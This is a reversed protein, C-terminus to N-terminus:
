RMFQVLGKGFPEHFPWLSEASDKSPLTETRGWGRGRPQGSPRWRASQSLSEALFERKM